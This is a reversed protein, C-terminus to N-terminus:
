GNINTEIQEMICLDDFSLRYSQKLILLAQIENKQEFAPRM